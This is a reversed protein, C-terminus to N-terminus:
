AQFKRSNLLRRVSEVIKLTKEDILRRFFETLRRHFESDRYGEAFSEGITKEIVFYSVGAIFSMLALSGLRAEELLLRQHRYHRLRELCADRVVPRIDTLFARAARDVYSRDSDYVAAELIDLLKLVKRSDVLKEDSSFQRGEFHLQIEIDFKSAM